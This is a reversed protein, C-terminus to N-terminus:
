NLKENFVLEDNAEDGWATIILYGGKVKMLVIPDLDVQGKAELQPSGLIRERSKDFASKHFLSEIAAILIFENLRVEGLRHMPIKIAARDDSFIGLINMIAAKIQYGPANLSSINFDIDDISVSFDMMEKINREPIDGLFFGSDRVYLNYKECIRELQPELIFKYKGGYRVAYSDILKKNEVISGYIKTAIANSFGISKLFNAKNSFDAINHNSSLFLSENEIDKHVEKFTKTELEM